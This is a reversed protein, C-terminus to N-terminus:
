KDGLKKLCVRARKGGDDIVNCKLNQNDINRVEHNFEKGYFKVCERLKKNEAKLKRVEIRRDMLEEYQWNLKDIKEQQHTWLSYLLMHAMMHDETRDFNKKDTYEKIWKNFDKM